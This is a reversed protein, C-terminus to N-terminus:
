NAIDAPTNAQNAANLMASNAYSLISQMQTNAAVLDNAKLDSMMTQFDQKIQPAVATKTVNSDANFQLSGTINATPMQTSSNSGISTKYALNYSHLNNGSNVDVPFFHTSTGSIHIMSQSFASECYDMLTNTSNINEVTGPYKVTAGMGDYPASYFLPIIVALNNYIQKNETDDPHCISGTQSLGQQMLSQTLPVSSSVCYTAVGDDNYFQNDGKADQCSGSPLKPLDGVGVGLSDAVGEVSELLVANGVSTKVQSLLSTPVAPIQTNDLSTNVSSWVYDAFSVGAIVGYLLIIQALCFGYKVPIVFLPGFIARIPMWLSSWNRGLFEGQHATNLTGIILIVGYILLIVSLLGSNFSALLSHILSADDANDPPTSGTIYYIINGFIQWLVYVSQDTAPTPFLTSM